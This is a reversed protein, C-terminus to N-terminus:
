RLLKGADWLRGLVTVACMTGFLVAIAAFAHPFICCLAMFVIMETGESLGSLAYIPKAREDSPLATALMAAYTFLVFSSAVTQEGLSMSFFLIFGAYIIWRAGHDMYRGFPTIQTNRAIVGDVGDLYRSILLLLLGFLYAGLGVAFLGCIGILFGIMTVQTANLGFASLSDAGKQILPAVAPRAYSDLM